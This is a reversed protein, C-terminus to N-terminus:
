RYRSVGKELDQIRWQVPESKSVIKGNRFLTCREHSISVELVHVDVMMTM